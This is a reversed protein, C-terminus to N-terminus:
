GEEEEEDDIPLKMAQMRMTSSTAGCIARISWELDKRRALVGSKKAGKMGESSLRLDVEADVLRELCTLLADIHEPKIM